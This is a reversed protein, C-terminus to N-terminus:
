KNILSFILTKTENSIDYLTFINNTIDLIIEKPVGFNGMYSSLPIFQSLIIEDLRKQKEEPTVILNMKEIDKENNEIQEKIKNKIHKEWFEKKKFLEHDKIREHIYTKKEDKLLYFTQSMIIILGELRDNKNKLLYDQTNQFIKILINFARETTLYRGTARYNNLCLFFTYINDEKNLLKLLRDVESDSISESVNNLVDFSLLKESLKEIEIKEKHLELIYESRDVMKFDYSYITLVINYIDEETLNLLNKSNDEKCDDNKEKNKDKKKKNKKKKAKDDKLSMNDSEKIQKDKENDIIHINHLMITKIRYKFMDAKGEKKININLNFNQINDSDKLKPNKGILDVENQLEYININNQKLLIEAFTKLYGKLLNFSNLNNKQIERYSELFEVKSQEEFQFFTKELYYAEELKNELSDKTLGFVSKNYKKNIYQNIVNDEIDGYTKMLSVIVPQIQMNSENNEPGEGLIDQYNKLNNLLNTFEKTIDNFIKENSSINGLNTLQLQIISKITKGLHHIPSDIISPKLKKLKLFNNTIEELQKYFVNIIDFYENIYTIIENLLKTNDKINSVILLIDNSSNQPMLSIEKNDEPNENIM